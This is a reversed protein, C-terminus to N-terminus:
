AFIVLTSLSPVILACLSQFVSLPSTCKFISFRLRVCNCLLLGGCVSSNHAAVFVCLLREKAIILVRIIDDDDEGCVLGDISDRIRWSWSMEATFNPFKLSLDPM